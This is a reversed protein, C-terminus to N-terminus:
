RVIRLISGERLTAPVGANTTFQSFTIDIQGADAGNKLWATMEVLANGTSALLTPPTKVDGFSYDPTSATARAFNNVNSFCTSPKDIGVRFNKTSGTQEVYFLADIWVQEYPEIYFSLTALGEATPSLLPVTVITNNDVTFDQDLQIQTIKPEVYDNGNILLKAIQQYGAKNPHVEDYWFRRDKFPGFAVDLDLMSDFRSRDGRILANLAQRAVEYDPNTVYYANGPIDTFVTTRMGLSAAYDVIDMMHGYVVDGTQGAAYDNPGFFIYFEASEISTGNPALLDLREEKETKWTSAAIGNIAVNCLRYNGRIAPNQWYQLPWNNNGFGDNGPQCTRSDGCTVLNRKRPDLHRLAKALTVNEADTLVRDFTFWAAVTGSMPLQYTITTAKNAGFQVLTLDANMQLNGTTDEMQAYGNIHAKVTPAVADDTSFAAITDIWINRSVTYASGNGSNIAGSYVGGVGDFTGIVGAGSPAALLTGSVSSGGDNVMNCLTSASPINEDYAFDVGTTFARVAPIPFALTNAINGNFYAGDTKQTVTGRIIGDANKLSKWAGQTNFGPRLCAGDVLDDLIGGAEMEGLARAWQLQAYSSVNVNSASHTNVLGIVESSFSEAVLVQAAALVAAPDEEIASVITANTEDGTNTGSSTGSFTGNQTALTGLSATAAKADLQTQIASTVGDLYLLETKSVAGFMAPIDIIEDLPLQKLAAGTTVSADRVLIFDNAADVASGAIPTKDDISETAAHLPLWLALLALTTHLLHKM